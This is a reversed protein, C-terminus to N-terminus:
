RREQLASETANGKEAADETSGDSTQVHDVGDLISSAVLSIFRELIDHHDVNLNPVLCSSKKHTADNKKEREVRGMKATASGSENSHILLHHSHDQGKKKESEAAAFCFLFSLFPVRERERERGGEREGRGEEGRGGVGGGLSL